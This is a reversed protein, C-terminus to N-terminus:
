RPKNISDRVRDIEEKYMNSLDLIDLEGSQYGIEWELHEITYSILSSLSSVHQYVAKDNMSDAMNLHRVGNDLLTQLSILNTYTIPSLTYYIDYTKLAVIEPQIIGNDKWVKIRPASTDPYTMLGTILQRSSTLSQVSLGLIKIAREKKEKTSELDTFYLAMVVGLFTAVVLFFNNLFDKWKEKDKVCFRQSILLVIGIISSVVIYNIMALNEIL